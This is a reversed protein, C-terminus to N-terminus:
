ASSRAHAKYDAVTLRHRLFVRTDAFSDDGAFCTRLIIEVFHSMAGPLEEIVHSRCAAATIWHEEQSSRQMEVIAWYVCQIDRM